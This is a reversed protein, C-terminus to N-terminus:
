DIIDEIQEALDKEMIKTFVSRKKNFTNLIFPDAKWGKVDHGKSFFRQGGIAWSLAKKNKPSIPHDKTGEYVFLGYPARKLDILIESSLGKVNVTISNGLRGTRTKYRHNPEKTSEESIYSSANFLSNEVARSLAKKDTLKNVLEELESIDVM